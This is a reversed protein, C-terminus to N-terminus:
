VSRKEIKSVVFPRVSGGTKLIGIESGVCREAVKGLILEDQLEPFAFDL